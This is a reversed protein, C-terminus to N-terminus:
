AEGGEEPVGEPPGHHRQHTRTISEVTRAVEDDSLPPRCHTRNWSLLLERAVSPELGHWLLYGTFSAITQNREGERVIESARQGWGGDGSGTAGPSPSRALELLWAPLPAATCEDPAHGPLWRYRGGSPHVSPPAVVIGGDGRLDIGPALGVRNRLEGGPHSFYLHRGGGGTLVELTHPLEGREQEWHELSALGGHRPDVDLVVLGSVRGTVIALNANRHRALWSRLEREEPHRRQFEEWRVVPRKGRWEVVVVSWGRALYALGARETEPSSM